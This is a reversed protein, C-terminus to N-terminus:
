DAAKKRSVTWTGTRRKGSLELYSVFRGELKDGKIVGEFTTSTKEGTDPDPYPDLWGSVENGECRVFSIKLVRPARQQPDDSRAVTPPFDPNSPIMLVDGSATDRGAVLSFVISGTRGTEPSVYEGAWDGVLPDISGRVPIPMGPAQCGLAAMLVPFWWRAHSM